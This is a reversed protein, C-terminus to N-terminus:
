TRTTFAIEYHRCREEVRSLLERARPAIHAKEVDDGTFARIADLSDFTAITAFEIEDGVTRRLVQAGRFGQIRDAAPLFTTRLFAEYADANEKSAAWGHWLRAIM